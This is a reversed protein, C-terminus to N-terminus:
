KFNFNYLNIISRSINLLASSTIIELIKFLIVSSYLNNNSYYIFVLYFRKIFVSNFVRIFIIYIIYFYLLFPLPFITFRNNNFIVPTNLLM